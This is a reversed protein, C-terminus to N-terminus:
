FGGRRVERGEDGRPFRFLPGKGSTVVALSPHYPQLFIRCFSPLAGSRWGETSKQITVRDGPRSNLVLVPTVPFM